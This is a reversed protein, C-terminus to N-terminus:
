FGCTSAECAFNSCVVSTKCPGFCVSFATSLCILTRRIALVRAIEASDFVCAVSVSRPRHARERLGRATFVTQIPKSRTTPASRNVQVQPLAAGSAEGRQQAAVAHGRPGVATASAGGRGSAGGPLVPPRFFVGGDGGRRGYDYDSTSRRSCGDVRKREGFFSSDNNQAHALTNNKLEM